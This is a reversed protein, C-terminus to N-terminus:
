SLGPIRTTINKCQSFVIAKRLPSHHLAFSVCEKCLLTGTYYYFVVKCKSLGAPPATAKNMVSM